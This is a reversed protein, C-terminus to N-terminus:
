KNFGEPRQTRKRFFVKRYFYGYYYYFLERESSFLNKKRYLKALAPCRSWCGISYSLTFWFGVLASVLSATFFSCLCHICAEYSIIVRWLCLWLESIFAAPPLQSTVLDQRWKKGKSRKGQNRKKRLETLSEEIQTGQKAQRVTSESDGPGEM